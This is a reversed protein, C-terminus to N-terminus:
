RDHRGGRLIQGRPRGPHLATQATNGTRRKGALREGALRKEENCQDRNQAKRWTEGHHHGAKREDHRHQRDEPLGYPQLLGRRVHQDHREREKEGPEYHFRDEGFGPGDGDLRQKCAREVDGLGKLPVSRCRCM